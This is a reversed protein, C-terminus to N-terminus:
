RQLYQSLLSHIQVCKLRACFWESKFFACPIEVNQNVDSNRVHIQLISADEIEVNHLHELDRYFLWPWKSHLNIKSELISVVLIVDTDNNAKQFSRLRHKKIKTPTVRRQSIGHPLNLTMLFNWLAFLVHYNKELKMFKSDNKLANHRRLYNQFHGVFSDHDIFIM